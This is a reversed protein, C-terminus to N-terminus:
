DSSLSFGLVVVQCARYSNTRDAASLLSGVLLMTMETMTVTVTM